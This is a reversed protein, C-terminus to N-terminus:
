PRTALCYFINELLLQPLFAKSRGHPDDDETKVILIADNLLLVLRVQDKHAHTPSHRRAHTHAHTRTHM